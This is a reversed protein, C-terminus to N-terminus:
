EELLKVFSYCTVDIVFQRRAQREEEEDYKTFFSYILQKIYDERKELPTALFELLVVQYNYAFLYNSYNVKKPNNILRDKAKALKEENDLALKKLSHIDIFKVM